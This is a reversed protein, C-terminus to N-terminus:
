YLLSLHQLFSFSSALNFPRPTFYPFSTSFALLFILRPYSFRDWTRLAFILKKLSYSSSCLINICAELNQEILCSPLDDVILQPWPHPKPRIPCHPKLVLVSLIYLSCAVYFCGTQRNEGPTSLLWPASSSIAFGATIEMIKNECDM